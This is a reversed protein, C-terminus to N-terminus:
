SFKCQTNAVVVKILVEMKYMKEVRIGQFLSLAAEDTMM